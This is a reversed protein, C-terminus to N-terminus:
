KALTSQDSIYARLDREATGLKTRLETMAKHLAHERWM